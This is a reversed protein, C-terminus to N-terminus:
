GWFREAGKMAATIRERGVSNASHVYWQIRGMENHAALYEIWAAVAYGDTGAATEGLDHDFSISEITRGALLSDNILKKAESATKVWVEDGKAGFNQQIFPITPDREDDLWIKM